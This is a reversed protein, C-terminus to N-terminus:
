RRKEIWNPIGSSKYNAMAGAQDGDLRENKIGVREMLSESKNMGVEEDGKGRRISLLVWSSAADPYNHSGM